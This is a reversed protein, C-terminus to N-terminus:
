PLEILAYSFDQANGGGVISDITVAGNTYGSGGGGGSGTNGTANGGYAGSGGGGVFTGGVHSSSFGGNTRFGNWGSATTVNSAAKYGREISASGSVQNGNFDRWKQTGMDSCPSFGQHAWYVGSTCSEVKGGITGSAQQGAGPLAGTSVSVGGTGGSNGSGAGGTQGAGGGHGGNGGYWGAAGGGGCAVLLIGNEYFYAGAGGRGLSATGNEDTNVGFKFAYENNRKM